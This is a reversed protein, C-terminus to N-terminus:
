FAEHLRQQVTELNAEAETVAEQAKAEGLLAALNMYNKRIKALLLWAKEVEKAANVAVTVAPSLPGPAAEQGMRPRSINLVPYRQIM